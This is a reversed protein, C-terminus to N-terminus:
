GARMSAEWMSAEGVSKSSGIWAQRVQVIEPDRSPASTCSRGIAPSPLGHGARDGKLAVHV